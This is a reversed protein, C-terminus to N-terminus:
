KWQFVYLVFHPSRVKMWMKWCPLACVGAILQYNGWRLSLYYKSNLEYGSNPALTVNIDFETFLLKTLSATLSPWSSQHELIFAHHQQNILIWITDQNFLTITTSARKIMAKMQLLWLMYHAATCRNHTLSHTLSLKIVWSNFHM